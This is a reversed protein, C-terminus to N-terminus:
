GNLQLNLFLNIVMATCIKLIIGINKKKLYKSRYVAMVAAAITCYCFPDVGTESLFTKRFDVCCLRLITVDQSCYKYMENQFDYVYNQEVLKKHWAKFENRKKVDKQYRDIDYFDISPMPGICDQHGTLNFKFPFDGKSHTCLDQGFTELCKSLSMQLFNLSDLLRIQYDKLTLQMIKQGAHIVHM